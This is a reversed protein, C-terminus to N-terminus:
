WHFDTECVLWKNQARLVQEILDRACGYGGGFRSVYIASNRIEATADYPACSLGVKELCGLDPMDDGMYAVQDPSLDLRKMWNLLVPLKNKVGMYIDKVGLCEFRKEVQPSVGGSIIALNLGKRIALQIAYGDKVNMMRRPQGDDDIPIVTPSLVGDVDFVIGRIKELDYSIGSM